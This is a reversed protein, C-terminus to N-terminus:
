IGLLSLWGAGAAMAEQAQWVLSHFFSQRAPFVIFICKSQCLIEMLLSVGPQQSVTLNRM